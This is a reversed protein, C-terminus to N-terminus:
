MSCIQRADSVSPVRSMVAQWLEDSVEAEGIFYTVENSCNWAKM